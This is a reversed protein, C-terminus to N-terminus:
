NKSHKPSRLTKIYKLPDQVTGVRELHVVGNLPIHDTIKAVGQKLKDKLKSGKSNGLFINIFVPNLRTTERQRKTHCSDLDIDKYTKDREATYLTFYDKAIEEEIHIKNNAINTYVYGKNLEEIESYHQTEPM